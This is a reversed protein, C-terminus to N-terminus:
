ADEVGRSAYYRRRTVEEFERLRAAQALLQEDPSRVSRGDKPIFLRALLEDYAARAAQWEVLLTEEEDM